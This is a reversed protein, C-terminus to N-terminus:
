ATGSRPGGGGSRVKASTGTPTASLVASSACGSTARWAANWKEWSVGVQCIFISYMRWGSPLKRKSAGSASAAKAEALRM